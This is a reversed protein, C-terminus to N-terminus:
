REAKTAAQPAPSRLSDPIRWHPRFVFIFGIVLAWIVLSAILRGQSGRATQRARGRAFLLLVLIPLGAVLGFTWAYDFFAPPLGHARGPGGGHPARQGAALSVVALLAVLLM